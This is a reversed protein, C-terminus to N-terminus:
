RYKPGNTTTEQEGRIVRLNAWKGRQTTENIATRTKRVPTNVSINETSNATLICSTSTHSGDSQRISMESSNRTTRKLLLRLSPDNWEPASDAKHRQGINQDPRNTVAWGVQLKM